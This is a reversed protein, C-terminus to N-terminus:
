PKAGSKAPQREKERLKRKALEGKLFFDLPAERWATYWLDGLMQAAVAYQKELFVRGEKGVEGEGTLKGEKELRYLPEVLQFQDVVFGVMKAFVPSNTGGQSTPWLVAAPRLRKSFDDFPAYGIKEMYGGDVWAHFTKSTTYGSPNAGTWGNYRRTTHLPQSADAVFHSLIGMLYIVNERANAVEEPQGGEELVKLYSFASKLKAYQEALVWPLFGPLERIRELNTRADIPAFREPHAARVRAMQAVFDYRFETLASPEIGYPELDEVDFYHDPNNVHRLALEKSNRWRDPEGGLFALRERASETTAFTPFDAPLVSVALRNIWRHGEYDFGVSGCISLSLLAVCALATTYRTKM